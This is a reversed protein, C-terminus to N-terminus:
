QLAPAVVGVDQAGPVYELEVLRLSSSSHISQGFPVAQGMPAEVGIGQAGPLYPEVSRWFVRSHLPAQAFPWKQLAPLVLLVDPM